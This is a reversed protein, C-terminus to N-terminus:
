SWLKLFQVANAPEIPFLVKIEDLTKLGPGNMSGYFPSTWPKQPRVSTSDPDFRSSTM